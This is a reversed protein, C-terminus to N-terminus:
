DPLNEEAAYTWFWTECNKYPDNFMPIEGATFTKIGVLGIQKYCLSYYPLEELLM